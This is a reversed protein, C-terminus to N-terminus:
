FSVSVTGVLTADLGPVDPANTDIYTVSITAPGVAVDVGLSWDLYDNDNDVSLSGNTYGFHGNITLPTRPIGIGVDGYVYLNDDDGLASQDPAYAVGTTLQAPGIQYSLSAYPEIYDTDFDTYGTFIGVASSCNQTAPPCPTFAAGRNRANPYLYYLVGIDLGVGSSIDGSWGAYIDLESHGFNGTKYIEPQLNGPAAFLLVEDDDEELSSGWAGAYFGSIHTLDVGGQIAFDEDSFSVGRFRYDSTLAANGSIAFGGGIETEANAPAALATMAALASMLITARMTMGKKVQRQVGHEPRRQAVAENQQPGCERFMM